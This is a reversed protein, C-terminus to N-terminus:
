EEDPIRVVPLIMHSPYDPSHYIRQKAKVHLTEMENHGGTNLNRSFFPFYASTIEVRLRWGPGLTIGSHWLDITYEYVRDPELLEPTHTSNRFRARIGGRGWPNGLPIPIDNDTIAVVNVFWDTDRASTAAFLKFSMPGAVTVPATFPDSEYVLIDKRKNTIKIYSKKGSEKARFQWAPTPDGPDYTFSDYERGGEPEVWMLRGDGKLTNARKRSHIYLKRFETWPLPYSDGSVWKRSGMAYMQIRPEELIGNDEGKLWTDFWRDYMGQLDIEAEKGMDRGTSANSAQDTHGWPGLVLKVFPSKSERLALYSLKSGIGDGDFWGSQLFVPIEVEKLRELYNAPEWYRDNVNHEIWRRWYANERGFIEKDLDIVPLRALIKEYDRRNIDYMKKMSLDASAESEVAESWWLAGYTFFLGYEYPINFFPDPPPVNPIITVLHPPKRSAAQLQVMGLYSGGIMGVKGTSWDRGALWEVADYGDDAENIMPEWDGVSSFRGRVDQVAAVYGRRAYYRGDIESMEKKYPTRILIIPFPGDGEPFYLDTALKVGDRMPIMEAQKLIDTEAMKAQASGAEKVAMLWEYGERVGVSQDSSVDSMIVRMNKDLWYIVNVGMVKWNFLRFRHDRGDRFRTEERLYEIEVEWINGPAAEPIRFRAFAQRGGKEMDYKRFMLSEPIIGYDDYLVYDDPLNVRHSKGSMRYVATRGLRTVLVKGFAPNNIEMTEWDGKQNPSVTMSMEATQGAMSIKLLREYRGASDLFTKVRGIETGKIFLTFVGSDEFVDPLFAPDEASGGRQVCAVFFFVGATLLLGMGLGIIAKLNKKNM